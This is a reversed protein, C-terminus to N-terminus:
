AVPVGRRKETYMAADAQALAEAACDTSACRYAGVSLGLDFRPESVKALRAGVIEAADADLDECLVVFEDGGIRAVTDHPRVAHRLAFAIAVLVSDGAQHGHTDNIAKFRNLDCFFLTPARGSRGARALGLELRDLLVRRNALGTLPDHRANHDVEALVEVLELYRSRLELLQEAQFALDLLAAQQEATLRRAQPDVVCLTGVAYGSPDHVPVSAYMRVDGLRGDVFGSDAFRPDLSADAVHIPRDDAVVHACMADARDAQTQSMGSAAATFQRTADLLNFAGIPAGTVFAALRTLAELDAAPPQDLIGLRHLAAVRADDDFPLPARV